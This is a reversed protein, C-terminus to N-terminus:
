RSEKKRHTNTGRGNRRRKLRNREIRESVRGAEKRGKNREEGDEKGM